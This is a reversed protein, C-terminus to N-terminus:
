ASLRQKIAHVSSKLLKDREMMQEVARCAYLVTAHNKSFAEGIEPFSSDTLSRCLYMAVQRPVAISKPRRRSSMDALRIDFYEAVSKQISEISLSSQREQEILDRLLQEMQETELPRKTLSVFSSLRILAGELKRINSRIREAIFQIADDPLAINMEESKNKLIAIRTETDPKELQTVQGWEFRSVLRETLKPIESAPRDCTLVIQKHNEFLANFTHFFEEQMGDKGSLVQIDDILLIDINRFRKRFDVLKKRQLAEVYKNIFHETSIYCIDKNNKRCVHHGVAQMLHTKGLGVGGYIFLPNYARAPNQAVALAAAHAFHNSPGVIFNEFSYKPNLSIKKKFVQRYLSKKKSEPDPTERTVVPPANGDVEVKIDMVRGCSKKMADQILPLYHEELWGLYFDNAVSLYLTDGEIRSPSIVAIWREFLDKSLQESLIRCTTSWVKSADRNM